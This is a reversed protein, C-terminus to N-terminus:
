KASKKSNKTSVKKTIKAKNKLETNKNSSQAKVSQKKIALKESRYDKAQEKNHVAYILNVIGFIMMYSGFYKIFPTAGLHGTNLIVAGMICGCVGALIWIFKDTLDDVAKLGLIVELIAMFLSVGWTNKTRTRALLNLLEIIGLSLLVSGVVIVLTQVDSSGTFLAFWGFLLAVIGQLAFIGWHSDIYKLKTSM